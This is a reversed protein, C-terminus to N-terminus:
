VTRENLSAIFDNFSKIGLASRYKRSLKKLNNEKCYKKYLTIQTKLQPTLPRDDKVQNCFNCCCKLNSEDTLGGSTVPIIHDLSIENLTSTSNEELKDGCIYCTYNDRILVNKRVEEPIRHGFNGPHADLFYVPVTKLNLKKAVTYYTYGKVLENTKPNVIIRLTKDKIYQKIRKEVTKESPPTLTKQYFSANIRKLKIKGKECSNLDM